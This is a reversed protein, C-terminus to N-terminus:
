PTTVWTGEEPYTINDVLAMAGYDEVVYAENVSEYNEIRDRKPDEMVMRRRSGEQYYISLISSQGAPPLPLVALSRSPFYPATYVPRGAMTKNILRLEMALQETPATQADVLSLFRDKLLDRGLLVVLNPDERYWPEILSNIIDFILGEMTKYDYDVTGAARIGVRVEKETGSTHDGDAIWNAPKGARLKQLWGINVDQLLPYTTRNTDAAASTGNFGIMIRDLAMQRIIVNRLRTQFDPYRAWLDLKGYTIHTDFDTKKCTYDIDALGAVDQTPRDTDSTDTRGAITGTAYLGMIEGVMDTVPVSNVRSLFGSSEQILTELRQEVPETVAFTKTADSIGNLTAIQALYADFARRTTTRM